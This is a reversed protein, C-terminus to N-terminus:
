TLSASLLRRKATFQVARPPHYEQMKGIRIDTPNLASAPTQREIKASKNQGRMLLSITGM